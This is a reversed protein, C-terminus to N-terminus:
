KEPWRARDKRGQEIRCLRIFLRAEDLCGARISRHLKGFMPDDEVHPQLGFRVRACFYFGVAERCTDSFESMGCELLRDSIMQKKSLAKEADPSCLGLTPIGTRQPEPMGLGKGPPPVPEALRHHARGGLTQTLDFVGKCHRLTSSRLTSRGACARCGRASSRGKIAV